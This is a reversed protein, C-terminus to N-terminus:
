FGVSINISTNSGQLDHEHGAIIQSPSPCYVLLTKQLCGAPEIPKTIIKKFNPPPPYDYVILVTFHTCKKPPSYGIKPTSAGGGGGWFFPSGPFGSLTFLISWPVSEQPLGSSLLCRM